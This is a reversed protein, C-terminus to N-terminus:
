KTNAERYVDAAFQLADVMDSANRHKLGCPMHQAGGEMIQVVVYGKYEKALAYAGVDDASTAQRLGTVQCFNKFASQMQKETYKDAM